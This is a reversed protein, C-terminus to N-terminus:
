FHEDAVQIAAPKNGNGNAHGNKGSHRNGNGNGNGNRPWPYHFSIRTGAGPRSEIRCQGGIEALRQRMNQLGDADGNVPAGDFGQGNDEIVIRLEEPTNTVRLWAETSQSHRAVNNLAEKSALFLNHRMEAPAHCGDCEGPLEVRCRIGATQLFDVAFQGLYDILDGVTDNRPNVAWVTEDLSKM